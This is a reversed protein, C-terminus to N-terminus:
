SPSATYVQSSGWAIQAYDSMISYTVASMNSATVDKGSNDKLSIKNEQLALPYGGIYSARENNACLVGAVSYDKILACWTVTTYDTFLRGMKAGLTRASASAYTAGLTADSLTVATHDKNTPSVASKNRLECKSLQINGNVCYLMMNGGKDSGYFMSDTLARESFEYEQMITQLSNFIVKANSNATNQRSKTMYTKMTPILVGVLISIIGMVIVMELLTFGSVRQKRLTGNRKMTLGEKEQLLDDANKEGSQLVKQM